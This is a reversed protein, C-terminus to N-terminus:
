CAAVTGAEMKLAAVVREYERELRENMTPAQSLNDERAMEELRRCLDALGTAGVNASSSKLAHASERLLAANASHIADGLRTKLVQSSELYANIVRALLSPAGPQQLRSLGDLVSSDIPSVIEPGTNTPGVEETRDSLDTQQAPIAPQLHLTLASHLQESTFPKTLYDNMGAALCLERDGKLANATVAVIPTRSDGSQSEAARIAKTAQFGDMDPMQCDMLIVDIAESAAKRAAERGNAAVLVSLGMAELMGIAVAQNVPNDEALLVRGTLAKASAVKLKSHTQAVVDGGLVVVLSDYLQSQRIPKTLQGAINLETLAEDSAPTAVSSLIIIRLDALDPNARIAQALEMGDTHPMHMDLIALDHVDDAAVAAELLNLADSASAASDTHARWGTLQHELIERNTANDDVILIKAGAVHQPAILIRSESEAGKKMLLSFSFTSGKGPTSQVKLDGRMLNVLQKSIALGLGTGGYIRTTTGDEQTFSDFIVEQMAPSIGIGTDVVEFLVKVNEADVDDATVKLRVEGNETFKIANGLLNTLVQRLRGPDAEVFTTLNMPAMNILELGKGYALNAMGDITEELVNHLDVDLMELRLKGAEMKSFDLIDNIISLLSEASEYITQTFRQQKVDLQTGQLLETMGLVGNMPTRIEHSMRALFESKTNSMAVAHDRAKESEQQAKEAVLRAHESEQQAQSLKSTLNGFEGALVGVEDSRDAGRKIQLDGTKRIGLMQETLHRVPTVILRQMFLWAALLFISSATLLFVLATSITRSGIRTIRRPTVVELVAVRAGLVDQLSRFELLSADTTEIHRQEDISSLTQIAQTAHPPVADSNVPYFAIEATARIGLEAIKKDDLFQGVVLSGVNPGEQNTTLVPYSGVVMLGTATQLLGKVTRSADQHTVLPHGPLLPPQIESEMSLLRADTPHALYDYLPNGDADFLLFMDVEVSQWYEEDLNEEAYRPMQGQVFEYTHDWYAYEQAFVALTRLDDDLTQMVRVVASASNEREFDQFTPLVTLNLAAYTGISFGIGLVLFLAIIKKGLTMDTSAEAAQKWILTGTGPCNLISTQM